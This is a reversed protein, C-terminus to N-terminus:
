LDVRKLKMRVLDTQWKLLRTDKNASCCSVPANCIPADQRIAASM